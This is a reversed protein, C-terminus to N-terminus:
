SDCTRALSAIRAAATRGGRQAGLARRQDTQPASVLADRLCGDLPGTWIGELAGLAVFNDVGPGLIASSRCLEELQELPLKTIRAMAPLAMVRIQAGPVAYTADALMGLALFGGSVAESYVVSLLRHGNNRALAFCTALHALYANNGVMEDRRSLRQGQTDVLMLIPRGPHIRIVDLVAAALQLAVDAGIAAHGATGIVAVRAGDLTGSGCLVEGTLTVDHGEPFLQACLGAWDLM